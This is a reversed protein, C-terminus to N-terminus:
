EDDKEEDAIQVMPILPVNLGRMRETRLHTDLSRIKEIRFGSWRRTDTEVIPAELLGLDSFRKTAKPNRHLERTTYQIGLKDFERKTQHCQVCSPLTWLTIQMM